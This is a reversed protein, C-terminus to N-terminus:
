LVWREHGRALGHERGHAHLRAVRPRRDGQLLGLVAAQRRLGVPHAFVVRPHHQGHPGVRPQQPLRGRLGHLRGHRVQAVPLQRRVRPAPRKAARAAGQPLAVCVRHRLQHRRHGHAWQRARRDRPKADVHPKARALRIAHRVRPWEQPRHARRRHDPRRLLRHARGTPPQAAAALAAAALAAPQAAAALAAPQAAAALAAAALAAALATAAPRRRRPRRSPPPPSAHRRAPRHHAPRRRAPRRRPPRRRAPRRRRPRHRRPRRRRPRRRRPPPAPPPSAATPPPALAAAPPRRRPRRAPRRRPRRRRPRRRRPRRRRAATPSPETATPPPPSPPPPSPPPAPRRRLRRAPPRRRRRPRHRAPPPPSPPPSPPPPSPPPPSPPPPRAAAALAAALAAAASAAAALAAAALAAALAAAARAAAALAAAARAAAPQAAAALAAARPRRRRPRRRRPRRRAPAAALAAAPPRRRRRAPRRRRPRRRRPRRRPRRRRPRRRRPRRRRPRRRRPPSPPPPSPPPPSPTPPPPTPPPPSPPPPTPPPPSPAVVREVFVPLLTANVTTAPCGDLGLGLDRTRIPETQNLFAAVAEYVHTKEPALVLVSAGPHTTAGSTTHPVYYVHVDDFFPMYGEIHVGYGASANALFAALFREVWPPYNLYQEYYRPELARRLRRRQLPAAHEDLDPTSTSPSREARPRRTSASPRSPSTRLRRWVRGRSDSTAARPSPRRVPRRLRPRRLRPRRRAPRRRRPPPPSPPPPSPPPPSPPPPSPPPPSPPPPSPPPPSPPPSPRRRRPRRSPPPPSPPPPSPPTALAAAALTRHPPPPSPPPPSPPPPSAAAALAAAALAAALAAAALAAAATAAALAAAPQAAAALAAAALAAAPQAAAALAAAALAAAAPAAPEASPRRRPPSAHTPQAAAPPRRRPRRRAHAATPQAAAALAAAAPRRRRPRRRRRAAAALAAAPPRRRRPRRRRQAAAALAAAPTPPPPPSPPPSPPPPSPPPPSPPPQAAAALAAAAVADPPPPSPPPPSPPPPSPTPPPPSPPPPSPPPPSPPPPSPPPSFAADCTTPANQVASKKSGLVPAFTSKFGLGDGEAFRDQGFPAIGTGLWTAYGAPMPINGSVKVGSAVAVYYHTDGSYNFPQLQTVWEKLGADYDALVVARHASLGSARSFGYEASTPVEIATGDVSRHTVQTGKTVNFLLEASPNSTADDGVVLVDYHIDMNTGVEITKALPSGRDNGHVRTRVLLDPRHGLADQSIVCETVPEIFVANGSTARLIHTADTVGVHPALVTARYDNPADFGVITDHLPNFQARTFECSTLDHIPDTTISGGKNGAGAYSVRTGIMKQVVTVDAVTLFCDGNADGFVRDAENACPDCAQLRRPRTELAAARPPPFVLPGMFGYGGRALRRRAPSGVLFNGSGAVANAPSFTGVDDNSNASNVSQIAIVETVIGNTFLHPLQSPPAVFQGRWYGLYVAGSSPITSQHVAGIKLVRDARAGSEEFNPSTDIGTSWTSSTPHWVFDSSKIGDFDPLVILMEASRLYKGAMPRAVVHLDLNNSASPYYFPAFQDTGMMSGQSSTGVDVDEAAPKLNAWLYAATHASASLAGAHTAPPLGDVAASPCIFAEVKVPNHYNQKLTLTGTEGDVDIVAPTGAWYSVVDAHDFWGSYTSADLDSFTFQVADGDNGTRTYVLRFQTAHTGNQELNLTNAGPISLTSLAPAVAASTTTGGPVSNWRSAGYNYLNPAYTRSVTATFASITVGTSNWASWGSQFEAVTGGYSAAGTGTLGEASVRNAGELGAVTADSSSYSVISTSITGVTGSDLTGQTALTYKEYGVNCPLPLLDAADHVHWGGPYAQATTTLAQLRVVRATDRGVFLAGGITVNVGIDVESCTAGEVVTVTNADNDVTACSADYSYYLITSTVSDPENAFTDVSSGDDYFVVLRFDSTPVTFTNLFPSFAAGDNTPTLDRANLNTSINFQIAFPDPMVVLIKPHGVGLPVGCRTTNVQVSFEACESIATKALTVMYQATGSNYMTLESTGAHEDRAEPATLILNSTRVIPVIDEHQVEESNGDDYFARVFLYGYHGRSTGAPKATFTQKLTVQATTTSPHSVYGPAASTWEIDTVVHAIVESVTVLTDSVTISVTPAGPQDHLKVLTTGVAKGRVQDQRDRTGKFQGPSDMFTAIATNAVQMGTAWSTVDLDDAYVRVSATQYASNRLNTTSCSAASSTPVIRNLTTDSLEMTLTTPSVIRLDVTGICTGSSQAACTFGSATGEVRSNSADSNLAVKTRLSCTTLASTPLSEYNSSSSGPAPACTHSAEVTYFSNSHAM